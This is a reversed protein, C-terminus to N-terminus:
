IKSISGLSLGVVVQLNAAPGHICPVDNTIITMLVQTSHHQNHCPDFPHFKVHIICTFGTVFGISLSSPSRLLKPFISMESDELILRPRISFSASTARGVSMM